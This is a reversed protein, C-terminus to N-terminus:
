DRSAPARGMESILFGITAGVGAGVLAGTFEHTESQNSCDSQNCRGVYYGVAWGVVGGLVGGIAIPWPALRTSDEAAAAAVLAMPTAMPRRVATANPTQASAMGGILFALAAARRAARVLPRTM